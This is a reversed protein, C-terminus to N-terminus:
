GDRRLEHSRQTMVVLEAKVAMVVEFVDADVAVVGVVGVAAVVVVMVGVDLSLWGVVGRWGGVVVVVVEM